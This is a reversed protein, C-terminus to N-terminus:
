LKENIYLQAHGNQCDQYLLLMKDFFEKLEPRKEFVVKHVPWIDVVIYAMAIHCRRSLKVHRQVASLQKAARGLNDLQKLKHDVLPGIM